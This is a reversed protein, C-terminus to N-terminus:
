SSSRRRGGERRASGASVREAVMPPRRAGPFATTGALQARAGPSLLAALPQHVQGARTAAEAVLPAYFARLSAAQEFAIVQRCHAVGCGCRLAEGPVMGLEAYDNTIQDGQAIDRIAIEYGHPTSICNPTCSHNVYRALDWALVFRGDDRRWLHHQRDFALTAPLADLQAETMVHDLPDLAWVITGRPILATAFVGFGIMEDVLRLETAPHIM